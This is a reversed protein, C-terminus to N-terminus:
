SYCMEKADAMAGGRQARDRSQSSRGAHAQGGTRTGTPVGYGSNRPANPSEERRLRTELSSTNGRLRTAQQRRTSDQQTRQVTLACACPRTIKRIQARTKRHEVSSVACVQAQALVQTSLVRSRSKENERSDSLRSGHHEQKLALARWPGTGLTEARSPSKVRTAHLNSSRKSVADCWISSVIAPASDAARPPPLGHGTWSTDSVRGCARLQQKRRRHQSDSFSASFRAPLFSTAAATAHEARQQHRARLEEDVVDGPAALDGRM